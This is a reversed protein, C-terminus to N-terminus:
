NDKLKPHKKFEIHDMNKLALRSITSEVLNPLIDKEVEKQIAIGFFERKINRDRKLDQQLLALQDKIKEEM